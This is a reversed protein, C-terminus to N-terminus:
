LRTTVIVIWEAYSGVKFELPNLNQTFIILIYKQSKKQISFLPMLNKGLVKMKLQSLQKCFRLRCFSM